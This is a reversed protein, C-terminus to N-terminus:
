RFRGACRRRHAPRSEVMHPRRASGLSIFMQEGLEAVLGHLEGVRWSSTGASPAGDRVHVQASLRRVPVRLDACFMADGWVRPTVKVAHLGVRLGVGLWKLAAEKAAFALSCAREAPSAGLLRQWSELEHALFAEEDFARPRPEVPTLDIGIPATAAAAIAVGHSHTISLYVGPIPVGARDVAIPRGACEDVAVHTQVADRALSVGRLRAAAVKAAVRGGVFECRRKEVARTSLHAIERDALWRRALAERVGSSRPVPVCALRVDYTM